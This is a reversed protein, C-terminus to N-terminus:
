LYYGQTFIYIYICKNVLQVHLTYHNWEREEEEQGKVIHFILFSDFGRMTMKSKENEIEDWKM